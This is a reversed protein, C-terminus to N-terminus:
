PTGTTNWASKPNGVWSSPHVGGFEHHYSPWGQWAVRTSPNTGAQEDSLINQPGGNLENDWWCVFPMPLGYQNSLKQMAGALGHVAYYPRTTSDSPDNGIGVEGCGIQLSFNANGTATRAAAEAQKTRYFCRILFGNQLSTRDAEVFSPWDYRPDSVTSNRGPPYMSWMVFDHYRAAPHLWDAVKGQQEANQTPNSGAFADPYRRVGGSTFHIADYLAKQSTIYNNIGAETHPEALAGKDYMENGNSWFLKIGWRTSHTNGSAYYFTELESRVHDYVTTYNPNTGGLNPGDESYAVFKPRQSGTRNAYNFLASRTYTRWGDWVETGGHDNKSASCGMLMTTTPPTGAPETPTAGVAPPPPAISSSAIPTIASRYALGYGYNKYWGGAPPPLTTGDVAVGDDGDSEGPAKIYFYADVLGAGVAPLRGLARGPPNFPDADPSPGLGNRSTDIVMTLPLGTASIVNAGFTELGATLRFNSVNLAIGRANGANVEVLNAAWTAAPHWNDHGSDVYVHHGANALRAITESMLTVRESRLAASLSDLQGLADPEYILVTPRSGLGTLINSIWTRYATGSTAGGGSYGGADRAPLNYIVFVPLKGSPAVRDAIWSAEGGLPIWDGAWIAVPADAIKRFQAAVATQGSNTYATVEARAPNEPNVYFGVGSFPNPDSTAPPPVAPPNTSVPETTTTEIFGSLALTAGAGDTASVQIRYKKGPTLGAITFPPGDASASPM